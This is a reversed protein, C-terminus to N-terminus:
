SIGQRSDPPIRGMMPSIQLDESVEKIHFVAPTRLANKLHLVEEKTRIGVPVAGFDLFKEQFLCRSETVFGQCKLNLAVGDDIKMTLLEEETKPGPPTFTVKINMSKGPAITGSMPNPTFINLSSPQWRFTAKDNGNNTVMLNETVSMDTNEESFNFKLTTKELELHVPDAQASVLFKFPHVDNIYYTIVGKFNQSKKSCFVLDFGVEHGPEVVQTLPGSKSLEEYEIV